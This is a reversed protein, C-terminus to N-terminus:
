PRLKARHGGATVMAAGYHNRGVLQAFDRGVWGNRASKALEKWFGVQCM